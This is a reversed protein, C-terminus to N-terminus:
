KDIKNCLIMHTQCEDSTRFIKYCNMCAWAVNDEDDEDYLIKKDDNTSNKENVIIHNMDSKNSNEKLTSSSEM